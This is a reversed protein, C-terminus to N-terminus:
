VATQVPLLIITQPPALLLPEKLVPPLYLGLVSLQVAVLVETRGNAPVIVRCDPSAILHDDPASYSRGWSWSWGRVRAWAWGWARGWRASWSGWSRAPSIIRYCVTPYGGAGGVGGIGSITVRCHPSSAFHDDPASNTGIIEVGAASVIGADIIPCGGGSGVGGSRPVIVGCDPGAALHNDPATGVVASNEVGAASIM